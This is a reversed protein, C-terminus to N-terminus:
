KLNKELWQRVIPKPMAGLFEDKIRGDVFLKVSPISRINYMNAVMPNEDVNLKALIFKGKMEEALEELIPGIIRCPMCWPAWFDVLVPIEKSKELVEKDFNEDNVEM